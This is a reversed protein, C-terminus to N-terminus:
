VRVIFMQSSLCGHDCCLSRQQFSVKSATQLSRVPYHYNEIQIFLQNATKHLPYSRDEVMQSTNISNQSVHVLPYNIGEHPFDHFQAPGYSIFLMFVSFVINCPSPHVLLFPIRLVPCSYFSPTHTQISQGPIGVFTPSLVSSSLLAWEFASPSTLFLFSVATTSKWSLLSHDWM